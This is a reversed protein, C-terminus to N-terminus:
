LEDKHKEEFEQMIRVAKAEIGSMAMIDAIMMTELIQDMTAGAKFAEEIHVRACHENQLAFSACLSMLEVWMMPINKPTAYIDKGMAMRHVYFDPRKSLYQAVLPIFGFKEELMKDMVKVAAKPDKELLSWFGKEIPEDPMMCKM